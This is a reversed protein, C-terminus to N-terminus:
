KTEELAADAGCTCHDVLVPSGNQNIEWGCCKGHELGYTKVARELAELRDLLAPLANHTTAIFAANAKIECDATRICNAWSARMAIVEGANDKWEGLTAADYLRRLEELKERTLEM